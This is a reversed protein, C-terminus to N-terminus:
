ENHRLEVINIFHQKIKDNITSSAIGLLDAANRQQGHTIELAKILLSREIMNLIAPLYFSGRKDVELLRTATQSRTDITDRMEDMKEAPIYDGLKEYAHRNIFDVLMESPLFWEGRLHSEHFIEHMRKELKYDGHIVGALKLPYPSGTQMDELRTNVGNIDASYGIKIPGKGCQIFYIM